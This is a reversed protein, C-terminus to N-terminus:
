DRRLGPQARSAPPRPRGAQRVRAAVGLMVVLVLLIFFVGLLTPMWSLQTDQAHKASPKRGTPGASTVKDHFFKCAKEQLRKVVADYTEPTIYVENYGRTESSEVSEVAECRGQEVMAGNGRRVAANCQSVPSVDEEANVAKAAEVESHGDGQLRVVDTVISASIPFTDLSPLSMEDVLKKFKEQSMPAHKISIGFVMRDMMDFKTETRATLLLYQDFQLNSKDDLFMTPHIGGFHCM